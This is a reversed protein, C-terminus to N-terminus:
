IQKENDDININSLKKNSNTKNKAKELIYDVDDIDVDGFLFFKVRQMSSNDKKDLPHYNNALSIIKKWVSSIKNNELFNKCKNCLSIPTKSNDCECDKQIKLIIKYEDPVKKKKILNLPDVDNAYFVIETQDKDLFATNFSIKGLKKIFFMENLSIRITIDGAVEYSFDKSTICATNNMVIVKRQNFFSGKTSSTIKNSNNHYFDCFPSIYQGNIDSKDFDKISISNIKIRYPFYKRNKTLISYFYEVYRRQSPQTVGEGKM